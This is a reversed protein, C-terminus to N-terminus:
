IFAKYCKKSTPKGNNITRRDVISIPTVESATGCFFAQNHIETIQLLDEKKCLPPFCFVGSCRISYALQGLWRGFVL